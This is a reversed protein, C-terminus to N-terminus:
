GHHKTWPVELMYEDETDSSTWKLLENGQADYLTMDTAAQPATYQPEEPYSMVMQSGERKVIVRETLPLTISLDVSDNDLIDAEFKIADEVRELNAMLESQNVRIWDLLVVALADVDGAYDILIVNLKYQYEFSLGKALTSKIVGADAFIMLRDPNQALYDFAQEIHQRLSQPKKM